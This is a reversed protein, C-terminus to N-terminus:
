FSSAPEYSVPRADMVYRPRASATASHAFRDSLLDPLRVRTNLGFGSQAAPTQAVLQARHEHLINLSATGAALLVLATAAGYALRRNTEGGFFAALRECAMKWLPERLLESRQRRHFDRLFKDFYEPPPQEYRKLRLLKEIDHDAAM